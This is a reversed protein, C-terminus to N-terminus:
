LMRMKRLRPGRWRSPFQRVFWQSSGWPLRYECWSWSGEVLLCRGLSWWFLLQGWPLKHDQCFKIIRVFNYLDEVFGVFNWALKLLMLHNQWQHPILASHRQIKQPVRQDWPRMNCNPDVVLPVWMPHYVDAHFDLSILCVWGLHFYLPSRVCYKFLNFFLFLLM